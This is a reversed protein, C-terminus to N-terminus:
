LSIILVYQSYLLDNLISLNLTLIQVTGKDGSLISSQQKTECTVTCSPAKKRSQVTQSPNKKGKNGKTNNAAGSTGAFEEELARPIAKMMAKTPVM